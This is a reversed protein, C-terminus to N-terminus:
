AHRESKLKENTKDSEDIAKQGGISREVIWFSITGAVGFVVLIIM